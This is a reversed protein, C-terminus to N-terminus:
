SEKVGHVAGSSLLAQIDSDSYGLEGLVESSHCGATVAPSQIKGPTRSLRPAVEAQLVGDHMTLNGRARNHPHSVAQTSDLVPAVCADSDAFIDCWEAQTKERIRAAIEAQQRPWLAKNMQVSYDTGGFDLELLRLLEAYFPPEIAGLSLYRGDKCPYNRYFPAGGDLINSERESEWFGVNQLSHVTTMLSSAGDCIAADVVQGLGSRGREYLASLIGMILFMSGGGLDGVVNLPVPPPQDAGGMAGLVGSIAIYNLDHGARQALPGYQGWGTMRGYILGPNSETFTDPGLGLKEMVGPRFGEVLVDASDILRRAAALGQERKLDIVIPRRGRHTVDGSINGMGGSSRDIRVVEAGLDSLLMCAYPGPGVGAVEVVRLGSLPGAM